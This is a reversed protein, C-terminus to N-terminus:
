SPLAGEECANSFVISGSATQKVSLVQVPINKGLFDGGGNIVVMTGDDLYGVGQKPEKGSRQVKIKTIDGAQMSIKPTSPPPSPLLIQDWPLQQLLPVASITGIYAGLLFLTMELIQITPPQFALAIPGTVFLTKFFLVSITGIGYGFSLAILFCFIHRFSKKKLFYETALLLGGTACGLLIGWLTQQKGPLGTLAHVYISISIASLLIFTIRVYNLHGRM